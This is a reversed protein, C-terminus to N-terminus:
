HSDCSKLVVYLVGPPISNGARKEKIEFFDSFGSLFASMVEEGSSFVVAGEETSDSLPRSALVNAVHRPRVM